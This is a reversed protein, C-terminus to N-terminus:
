APPPLAGTGAVRVSLIEYGAGSFSAGRGFLTEYEREFLAATAASRVRTSYDGDLSVDLHNRSAASASRCRLARRAIDRSRPPLTFTRPSKTPLPSRLGGAVRDLEEKAPVAGASIRM